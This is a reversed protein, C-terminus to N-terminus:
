SRRLLITGEAVELKSCVRKAYPDQKVYKRLLREAEDDSLTLSLVGNDLSFAVNAVNFNLTM